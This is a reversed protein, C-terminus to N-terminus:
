IVSDIWTVLSQKTVSGVKTGEIEGDNFVMLTPVGRIGYETALDACEQIEVKVIKIDERETSLTDLVPAIAKCPGCWTAWFDVVVPVDSNLVLEEFNESTANIVKTM